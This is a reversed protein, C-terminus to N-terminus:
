LDGQVSVPDSVTKKNIKGYVYKRCARCQRHTHGEPTTYYKTNEEDYPHGQPCHTKVSQPQPMEHKWSDGRELNERTTVPELHNPNVCRRNRCLHDIVLGLPIDGNKQEYAIRHAQLRTKSGERSVSLLGYGGTNLSGLWLWCEESNLEVFKSKFRIVDSDTLDYAFNRVPPPWPRREKKPYVRRPKPNEARIRANRERCYANRCIRCFRGAKTYSTTEETFLHGNECHLSTPRGM